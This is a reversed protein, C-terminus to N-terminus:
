VGLRTKELREVVNEFTVSHSKLLDGIGKGDCVEVSYQEATRKSKTGLRVANTAFVLRIVKKNLEAEYKVKAAHVETVARYGDYSNTRTHKCQVLTVEWGKILVVDAGYDGGSHTLWCSDAHYERLFLESCLAEFQQWSLKVVDDVTIRRSPSWYCEEFGGPTPMVQEPTVVADKLLSKRTLLQHLNVDFSQFKPHHILPVFVNVDKKQGIRYVRDTAQAEKAPNWHRELHIVNNAGVVTLGVGAAVPSMIIINFGEREEFAKIM